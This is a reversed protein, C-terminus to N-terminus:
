ATAEESQEAVHEMRIQDLRDRIDVVRHKELDLDPELLEGSPAHIDVIIERRAYSAAKEIVLGRYRFTEGDSAARIEGILDAIKKERQEPTTWQTIMSKM